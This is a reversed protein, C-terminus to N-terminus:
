GGAIPAIFLLEEVDPNWEKMPILDGHTDKSVVCYAQKGNQWLSELEQFTDPVRVRFEAPIAEVRKGTMKEFLVQGVEPELVAEHHGRWSTIKIIM